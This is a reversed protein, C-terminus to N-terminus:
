QRDDQLLNRCLAQVRGDIYHAFALLDEPAL